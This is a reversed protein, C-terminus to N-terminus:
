NAVNPKKPSNGNTTDSAVNVVNSKLPKPRPISASELGLSKADKPVSVSNAQVHDEDEEDDVIVTTSKKNFTPLQIQPKVIQVVKKTEVVVEEDDDELDPNYDYNESDANPDKEDPSDNYPFDIENAKGVVKLLAAHTEPKIRSMSVPLIIFYEGASDLWFITPAPNAASNYGEGTVYATPTQVIRGKPGRRGIRPDTVM